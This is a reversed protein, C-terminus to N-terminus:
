APDGALTTQSEGTTQGTQNDGLLDGQPEPGQENGEDGEKGEPTPGQGGGNPPNEPKPALPAAGKKKQPAGGKKEKEEPPEPHTTMAGHLLLTEGDMVISAHTVDHGAERLSQALSQAMLDGSSNKNGTGCPGTGKILISYPKM